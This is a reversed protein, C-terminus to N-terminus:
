QCAGCRIYLQRLHDDAVGLIGLPIAVKPHILQTGPDKKGLSSLVTVGALVIGVLIILLQASM